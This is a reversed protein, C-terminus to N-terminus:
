TQKAPALRPLSPPLVLALPSAYTFTAPPERDVTELHLQFAFSNEEPLGVGKMLVLNTAQSCATM